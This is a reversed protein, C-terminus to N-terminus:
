KPADVGFWKKYITNYTGDSKASSLVSNVVSQLATNDKGMSFGYSENTTFEKAVTTKPNDKAFNYVVGNDNIAADITGALVANASGPFDDFVKITYGYQAKNDEAYKQGTTDTQVGVVKGKLGSLDTVGASGQVLLAQTAAFYPSSFATAQKREDTITIAAAGVDCKKAAFAAGSTIQQFEIDVVDTTANLKKAVLDMLDVDFGVVKGSDDKYEFPKYSLNTCVTLKGSSILAPAAAGSSAAASGSSSPTSSYNACGTLTLALASAAASLALIRKM